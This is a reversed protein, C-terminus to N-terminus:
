KVAKATILSGLDYLGSAGLGSLIGILAIQVIPAPLIQVLVSIIVGILMSVLTLGKGALGFAKAFNVLGLIAVIVLPDLQYTM